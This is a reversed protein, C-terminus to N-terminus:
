RDPDLTRMQYLIKEYGHLSPDAMALIEIDRGSVIFLQTRMPSSAYMQRSRKVYIDGNRKALSRYLEDVKTAPLHLHTKRLEDVKNDLMKWRKESEHYEDELLEYNDRLRIEFPDDCIEISIEQYLFVNVFLRNYFLKKKSVHLYYKSPDVKM